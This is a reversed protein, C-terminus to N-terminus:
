RERTVSMAGSARLRAKNGSDERHMLVDVRYQAGSVDDFRIVLPAKERAAALIVDQAADERLNWHDPDLGLVSRQGLQRSMVAVRVNLAPSNGVNQLWLTSGDSGIMGGRDENLTVLPHQALERSMRTRFAVEVHAHEMAVSADTTRRYYIREDRVQHPKLPSQPTFAAIAREGSGDDVLPRLELCPLGPVIHVNAWERIKEVLSLDTQEISVPTDLSDVKQTRVGYLVVGGETNALASLAKGVLKAASSRDLGSGGAGAQTQKYDLLLGEPKRESIWRRIAKVSDLSDFLERAASM